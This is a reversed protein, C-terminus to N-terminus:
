HQAVLEKVQRQFCLKSNNKVHNYIGIRGKDLIYLKEKGPAQLLLEEPQFVEKIMKRAMKNQMKGTWNVLMFVSRKLVKLNSELKIEAYHCPYKRPPGRHFSQDILEVRGRM